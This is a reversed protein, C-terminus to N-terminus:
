LASRVFWGGSDRGRLERFGFPVGYDVNLKSLDSRHTVISSDEGVLALLGNMLRVGHEKKLPPSDDRYIDRMDLYTTSSGAYSDTADMILDNVEVWSHRSEGFEIAMDNYERYPRGAAKWLSRCFDALDQGVHAVVHTSSPLVDASAYCKFSLCLFM